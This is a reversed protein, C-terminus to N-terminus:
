LAVPPVLAHSEALIQELAAPDHAFRGLFLGDVSDGLATLLGPGASGGYIVGRSEVFPHEVIWERVASCVAGIHDPTAAADAGIAWEPEYAVVIGTAPQPATELVSLASELQAICVAAADAPPMLESEGICVIPILGNRVAAAVKNAVIEDSESFLRRREAHGVEVYRCGLEALDQGSVEGTFAGRDMWFLDQGGVAIPTGAVADLVAPLSPFSPLIFLEVEGSRIGDDRGAIEAVQSAWEVMRKHDFYMKLSVGLIRRPHVSM